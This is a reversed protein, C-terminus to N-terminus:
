QQGLAKELAERHKSVLAINGPLKVPPTNKLADNLEDLMQKKEAPSIQTDANIEAIEKKILEIPDTYKGSDPDIGSLIVSINYAVDDYETYDAFGHKKAISDLEAQQKDTPATGEQAPNREIFQTIDPQAAIFGQIHKDTLQLQNFAEQAKAAPVVVLSMLGIAVASAFAALTGFRSLM